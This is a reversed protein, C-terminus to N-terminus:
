QGGDGGFTDERAFVVGWVEKAGQRKLVKAVESLTSCTTAVDDVLVITKGAIAIHQKETVSFANKVNSYRQKKSLKFQPKTARNRVILDDVTKLEFYQAVYSCLLLAHNYGRASLRRQHLPVPVLLPNDNLVMHFIENQELSECMLKGIDDKLDSVYPAYKYQYVLRKIVGAYVVASVLGDISYSTQCKPHTAGEISHKNCVPCIPTPDFRIYSFCADCIYNGVRHCAVCYKPFILNVLTKWM